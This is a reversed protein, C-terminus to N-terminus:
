YGSKKGCSKKKGRRVKYECAPHKRCDANSLSVCATGRGSTRKPGGFKPSKRGTIREVKTKKPSKAKRVLKCRPKRAKGSKTKKGPEGYQCKPHMRDSPASLCKETVSNYRCGGGKQKRSSKKKPSKKKPSKKKKNPSRKKRGHSSTAKQMCYSKGTKSTRWDCGMLRGAPGSCDREVMNHCTPVGVNGSRKRPSTKRLKMPPLPPARLKAGGKWKGKQVAVRMARRGRVQAALSKPSAKKGLTSKKCRGSKRGVTCWENHNGKSARTCRKMKDDFGCRRQIKNRSGKKRGRAGATMNVLDYGGYM